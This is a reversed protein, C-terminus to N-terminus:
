RIKKIRYRIVTLNGRIYEEEHINDLFEYGQQKIFSKIKELTQTQNTYFGRHIFEVTHGYKWVSIKINTSSIKNSFSINDPLPLGIEGKLNKKNKYKEWRARPLVFKLNKYGQKKLYVYNRYLNNISEGIDSDPNIKCVLMKQDKFEIIRPEKLNSYRKESFNLRFLLTIIFIGVFVFLLFLFNRRM